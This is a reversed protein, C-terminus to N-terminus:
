WNLYVLDSQRARKELAAKRMMSLLGAKLRRHSLATRAGAQSLLASHQVIQAGLDPLAILVGVTTRSFTGSM